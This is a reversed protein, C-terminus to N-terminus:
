MPTKGKAHPGVNVQQCSAKMEICMGISYFVFIHLIEREIKKSFGCIWQTFLEGKEAKAVQSLQAVFPM